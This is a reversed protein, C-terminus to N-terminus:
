KVKKQLHHLTIYHSSRISPLAPLIHLPFSTTYTTQVQSRAGPLTHSNSRAQRNRYIREQAYLSPPLLLSLSLSIQKSLPTPTINPTHIHKDVVAFLISPLFPFFPFICCSIRPRTHHTCAHLHTYIYIRTHFDSLSLSLFFIHFPNREVLNTTPLYIPLSPPM